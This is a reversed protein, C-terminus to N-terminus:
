PDEEALHARLAAHTELYRRYATEYPGPGSAPGVAVAPPQDLATGTVLEWGARVAGATGPCVRVPRGLVDALLPALNEAAGGTVIIEAAPRGLARALDAVNARVAFAHAEDLAQALDAATSAPSLGIFAMPAKVAWSRESWEPTAVTATIGGAGPRGHRRVPGTLERLWASMTGPYGANTEAAWLAPRAHTSIWAGQRQDAVPEATAAQVPTSSGAVVTIASPILGGAGMAALQTDGCGAHVPLGAPLGLSGDALKGAVTGAEVVPALKATGLGVEDLLDAAWQRRRVDAMQGACAYSAETVHEGTLRWIVWDHVFLVRRAAAWRAPESGAVALLKGLTLEPAPWHGTTGYLGPIARLRALFPAGRRDSNLVGRGLEGRDGLLVFAQRMSSAVVGAFPGAARAQSVTDRIEERIVRWWAAPDFEARASGCRIVPLAATRTVTGHPGAAWVKVGSGGVDVGLVQEAAATM